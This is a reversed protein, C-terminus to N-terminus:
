NFKLWDIAVPGGSKVLVFLDHKGKPAKAIQINTIRWTGNPALKALAVLAGGPGDLRVEVTSAATTTARISMDKWRGKAFDVANYRLWAGPKDFTAKWGQM